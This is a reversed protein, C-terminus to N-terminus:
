PKTTVHPAWTQIWGSVADPDALQRDGAPELRLWGPALYGVMMLPGTHDGVLEFALTPWTMWYVETPEALVRLSQQLQGLAGPEDIKALAAKGHRRKRPPEPYASGPWIRVLITRDLFSPLDSFSDEM